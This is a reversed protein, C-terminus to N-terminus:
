FWSSEARSDNAYETTEVLVEEANGTARASINMGKVWSDFEPDVGHLQKM